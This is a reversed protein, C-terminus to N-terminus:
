KDQPVPLTLGPARSIQYNATVPIGNIVYAYSLELVQNTAADVIYGVTAQPGFHPTPGLTGEITLTGDGETCTASEVAAAAAQRQDEIGQAAEDADTEWALTWGGAGDAHWASGEFHLTAPLGPPSITEVLFHRDSVFSQQYVQEAGAMVNTNMATYPGDATLDTSLLTQLRLACDDALAPAPLLLLVPLLRM